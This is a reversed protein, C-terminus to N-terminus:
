AADKKANHVALILERMCDFFKQSCPSKKARYYTVSGCFDEQVTATTVREKIWGQTRLPVNVHYERMLYLILSTEVLTGDDKYYRLSVNQLTGGDRITQLAAHVVKEKETNVAQRHAREQEAAEARRAADKQAQHASYIKALQVCHGLEDAMLAGVYDPFTKGGNEKSATYRMLHENLIGHIYDAQRPSEKGLHYIVSREIAIAEEIVKIQLKVPAIKLYSIFSYVINRQERASRLLFNIPVIELIKIFRHDTTYVIGNEIKQIPVYAALPNGPREAQKKQRYATDLMLRRTDKAFRIRSGDKKYAAPQVATSLGSKKDWTPLIAQKRSSKGGSKSLSRRNRLFRFFLIIYSSLPMGAIGILALLALPLSTLCLLIIRVTLTLSLTLIPLGTGAALIVAEVVNRAKFLGGFFSGGEIFNPPIVYSDRQEQSM